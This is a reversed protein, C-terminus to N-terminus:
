ALRVRAFDHDIVVEHATRHLVQLASQAIRADLHEIGAAVDRLGVNEVRRQLAGVAHKMKRRQPQQLAVFKRARANSTLTLPM